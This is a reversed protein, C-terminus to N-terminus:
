DASRLVVVRIEPDRGAQTIADTVDSTPMPPSMRLLMVAIATM